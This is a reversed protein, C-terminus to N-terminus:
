VNEFEEESLEDIQFGEEDIADWTSYNGSAINERAEEETDAVTKIQYFVTASAYATYVKSM